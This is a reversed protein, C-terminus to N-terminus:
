NRAAPFIDGVKLGALSASGGKGKTELPLYSARSQKATINERGIVLDDAELVADGAHDKQQHPEEQDHQDPPLQGIGSFDNREDAPQEALGVCWAATERRLEVVLEARHV